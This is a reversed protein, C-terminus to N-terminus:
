QFTSQHGRHLVSFAEPDPKHSFKLAFEYGCHESNLLNQTISQFPRFSLWDQQSQSIFTTKLVWVCGQLEGPPHLLLETRPLLQILFGNTQFYSTQYWMQHRALTKADGPNLGWAISAAWHKARGSANLNVSIIKSTIYYQARALAPMCFDSWEKSVLYLM